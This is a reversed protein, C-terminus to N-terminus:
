GVQLAREVRRIAEDATCRGGGIHLMERTHIWAGVKKQASVVTSHTRRGFYHGIESLAARTHKRALWMALMRPYAADRGRRDSQLTQKDLGFVGCVAAEIDGLCLPRRSYRILDGLARQAISLTIPHGWAAQEAHLRNVAGALERAHNTLNTAIYETVEDPLQLNLNAAFQQVIGLRVEYDPPDIRCVVGASLRHILEKGLDELEGPPRDSALVVQRGEELLSNVTYLLEVLTARKGAFFQLDDIVLLDVGRYKRRFSPLGSGRLAELFCSTFQEATLFVAAAEPRHRRTASWIGELLHTKGVGTPGHFVLPSCRGLRGPTLEAATFALRNSEGTVFTALSAFRRGSSRQSAQCPTAGTAAPMAAHDSHCVASPATQCTGRPVDGSRAHFELAPPRGLVQTGAAEIHERFNRRLWDQLFANPATVVLREADIAFETGEGFWLNYREHGLSDVLATRLASVTAM